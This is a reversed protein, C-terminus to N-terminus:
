GTGHKEIGTLTKSLNDNSEQANSSNNVIEQMKEAGIRKAAESLAIAVDKTEILIKGMGRRFYILTQQPISLNIPIDQIADPMKPDIHTSGITITDETESVAIVLFSITHNTFDSNKKHLYARLANFLETETM